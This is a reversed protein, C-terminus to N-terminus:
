IRTAVVLIKNWRARFTGADTRDRQEALWREGHDRDVIGAASAHGVISAADVPLARGIIRAADLPLADVRYGRSAETVVDDVRFRHREVMAALRRGVTPHRVAVLRAPLSGDPTVVSDVRFTSYDPEFIALFGGPRVVRAAEAVVVDPDEVHQLVREIRCGDVSGNRLPLAVGDARVLPVSSGLTACARRLVESSSDIGLAGLGAAALRALDDGLGCGLDLVTGEGLARRAAAVIYSKMAVLGENTARLYGVLRDVDVSRDVDSFGSVAVGRAAFGLRDAGSTPEGTTGWRTVALRSHASRVWREDSVGARKHRGDDGARTGEVAPHPDHPKM